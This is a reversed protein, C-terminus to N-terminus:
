LQSELRTDGHSDRHDPLVKDGQEMQYRSDPKVSHFLQQKPSVGDGIRSEGNGGIKSTQIVEM